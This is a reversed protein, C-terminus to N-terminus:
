GAVAVVEASAARRLMLTIANLDQDRTYGCALCTVVVETHPNKDVHGCRCCERTLNKSDAKTVVVGRRVAAAQVKDRLSGPAALTATVRARDQVALPVAPDQEEETGLGPRRRLEALDTKDLVVQQAADALWAGVARWVNDRRSLLQDRGHAEYRWLHRDRRRWTDAVAIVDAGGPPPEDRWRTILAALRGVSRWKRVDAGTLESGDPRTQPNGDLWDALKAQVPAQDEARYGAITSATTAGDLWRQPLIVSGGTTGSGDVVDALWVPVELPVTSRWTAVRVGPVDGVVVRWGLHLAVVPGRTKPQPDPVKVTVCVHMRVHPGVRRRILEAQLVEGDPPLPRHMQVPLTITRNRGFTWLLEGRGLQRQEARSYSDWAAPDVVPNMRIQFVNKWKGSGSSILAPTRPPDAANRMLQVAIRGEGTWRHFRLEAPRGKARQASVRGAATNHNTRVANYTAWYLGGDRQVFTAYRDKQQASRREALAFLRPEAEPMAAEIAARRQAKVEKVVAKAARLEAAIASRLRRSRDASREQRAQALLEELRAEAVRLHSEAEAVAPFSSWLAAKGAEHDQDVEVFSNRLRHAAFFQEMLDPHDLVERRAAAGGTPNIRYKFVQTAVGDDREGAFSVAASCRAGRPAVSLKPCSRRGPYDPLGAYRLRAPDDSRLDSLHAVEQSLAAPRLQVLGARLLLAAEEGAAQAQGEPGPLLRAARLWSVWGGIGRDPSGNGAPVLQDQYFALTLDARSTLRWPGAPCASRADEAWVQGRPRGPWSWGRPLGPGFEM